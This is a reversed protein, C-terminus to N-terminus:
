DCKPGGDSQDHKLCKILFFVLSFDIPRNPITETRNQKQELFKNKKKQFLDIQILFLLVVNPTWVCFCNKQFLFLLITNPVSVTEEEIRQKALILKKKIYISIM